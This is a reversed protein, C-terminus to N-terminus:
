HRWLEHVFLFKFTRTLIVKITESQSVWPSPWATYGNFRMGLTPVNLRKFTWLYLNLFFVYFIMFLAFVTPQIYSLQNEVPLSLITVVPFILFLAFAIMCDTIQIMWLPSVRERSPVEEEIPFAPSAIGLTNEEHLSFLAPNWLEKPKPEVSTKMTITRMVNPHLSPRRPPGKFLGVGKSLPKANGMKKVLGSDLQKELTKKFDLPSQTM